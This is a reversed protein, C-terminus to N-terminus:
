DFPFESLEDDILERVKRDTRLQIVEAQPFLQKALVLEPFREIIRAIEELSWVRVDRPRDVQSMEADTRVLLARQGDALEFEWVGPQAPAIGGALALEELKAYARLMADGQVRVRDLDAPLLSGVCEFCAMQWRRKQEVFRETWEIPVVHPLRNHGWRRNMEQAHADVTRIIQDIAGLIEHKMPPPKGTM